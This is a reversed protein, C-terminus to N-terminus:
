IGQFIPFPSPMLVGGMDFIVADTKREFNQRSACLNRVPTHSPRFMRHKVMSKFGYLRSM